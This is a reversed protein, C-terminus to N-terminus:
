PSGTWLSEPARDHLLTDRDHSLTDRDHLLIGRGHLLTGRDHLLTDRGQLLTDRDHLLTGRDRSLALPAPELCAAGGPGARPDRHVALGYLNLPGTM